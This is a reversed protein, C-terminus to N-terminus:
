YMHRDMGVVTSFACSKDREEKIKVLVNMHPYVVTYLHVGISYVYVCIKWICQKHNQVVQYENIAYEMHITAISIFLM